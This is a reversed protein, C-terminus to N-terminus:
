KQKQSLAEQVKGPSAKFECDEKRQRKFIQKVPMHWWAQCCTKMYDPFLDKMREGEREV